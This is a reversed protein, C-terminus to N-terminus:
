FWCCIFFCNKEIKLGSGGWIIVFLFEGVGGGGGVVSVAPFDALSSHVNVNLRGQRADEM